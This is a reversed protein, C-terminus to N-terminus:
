PAGEDDDPPIPKITVVTGDPLVYVKYGEDRLRQLEAPSPTQARALRTRALAALSNPKAPPSM